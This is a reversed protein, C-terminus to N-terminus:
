DWWVPYCCELYDKYEYKKTRDNENFPPLSFIHYNENSAASSFTGARKIGDAPHSEPEYFMVIKDNPITLNGIGAVEARASEISKVL